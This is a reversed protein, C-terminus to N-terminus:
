LAAVQLYLLSNVQQDSQDKKLIPKLNSVGVCMLVRVSVCINHVCVCFAEKQIGEAASAVSDLSALIHRM